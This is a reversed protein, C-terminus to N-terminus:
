RGTIRRRIKWRRRAARPLGGRGLSDCSRPIKKLWLANAYRVSVWRGWVTTADHAPDSLRSEIAVRVNLLAMSRTSSIRPQLSGGSEDSVACGFGTNSRESYGGSGADYNRRGAADGPFIFDLQVRSM